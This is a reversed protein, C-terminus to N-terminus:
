LLGAQRIEATTAWRADGHLPRPRRRHSLHLALPLGIALAPAAIGSILLRKGQVPHDRYAEWYRLWTDIEIDHPITKNILYFLYGALYACALLGLALVAALFLVQAIRRPTM